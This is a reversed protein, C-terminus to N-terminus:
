SALSAPQRAVALDDAFARLAAARDKWDFRERCFDFAAASIRNLLAFDSAVQGALVVLSDMDLAELYHVGPTFGMGELAGQVAVIPVRNFMYTLARLKFGGGIADPMVGVRVERLYAAIDEVYGCFTLGPYRAQLKAKLAPSLAGVVDIHEVAPRNPQLAALCQHLVLQKHFSGRGGLVCIREPVSADIDRQKVMEGEYGPTLLLYRAQPHDKEFLRRDRETLVVVGDVLQMAQHELRMAKWADLAVVQRMLPNDIQSAAQKRMTKNHDLPIFITAPRRMKPRTAFHAELVSACWAMGLHDLVVAEAREALALMQEIFAPRRYQAAVNPHPAVLSRWRPQATWPLLHWTLGPREPVPAPNERYCLVDVPIIDALYELLRATYTVDGGYRPPYPVFRTLWLVSM